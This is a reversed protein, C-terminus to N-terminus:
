RRGFAFPEGPAPSTTLKVKPTTNGVTIPVSASSTRGTRDTVKLTADFQGNEEYTFSPNQATSDVTGDSDFDWAYVIRDGDPDETGESSFQVEFPPLGELPINPNPQGEAAVRVDALPQRARLQGQDAERGPERRLLRRRVRPHLARRGPRVGHRDPQRRPQGTRREGPDIWSYGLPLPVQRIDKLQGGNPKNLRFEKVYDRSWEYFLPQGNYYRPWKFRSPNGEDFQYAPGAM